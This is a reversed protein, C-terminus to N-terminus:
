QGIIIQPEGWIKVKELKNDALFNNSQLVMNEQKLKINGSGSMKEDSSEWFIVDGKLVKKPERTTSFEAKYMTLNSNKLNLNATPSDVKLIEKKNELFSGNMGFLEVVNKQNNVVAKTVNFRWTGEGSKLELVNAKEFIFAPKPTEIEIIKKEVKQKKILFFFLLVISVIIIVKKTIFGKNYAM